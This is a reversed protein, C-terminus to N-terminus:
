KLDRWDVTAKGTHAAFSSRIDRARKELEKAETGRGTKKLVTAYEELIRGVDPHDPGVIREMEALAESLWRLAQQKEGLKWSSSGLNALIRARAQGPLAVGVARKLTELAQRQRHQVQYLIALDNLASASNSPDSEGWIHLANQLASEAEAFRREQFLVQGMLHWLHASRPLIERAARFSAEARVTNGLALYAQGANSHAVAEAHSGKATFKLSREFYEAAPRYRGARFETRGLADLITVIGARGRGGSEADALAAALERHAEDVKGESLLQEGTRYRQEWDTWAPAALLLTLTLNRM